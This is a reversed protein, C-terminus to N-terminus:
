PGVGYSPSQFNNLPESLALFEGALADLGFGKTVTASFELEHKARGILTDIVKNEIIFDIQARFLEPDPERNQRYTDEPKTRLEDPLCVCVASFSGKLLDEKIDNVDDLLRWAVGFARYAKLFDNETRDNEAFNRLVLAPTILWTAMQDEFNRCYSELSDIESTIEISAYYQDIYTDIIDQGAAVGRALGHFREHMLIWAQSRLLINLHTASLEGDNLHDDMAHLLMAMAHATQASNIIRESLRDKNDPHNMLWYLVSWAPVYYRSLFNFGTGVACGLYQMLFLIADTQMSAPLTKCLGSLATGMEDCFMAQEPAIRISGFNIKSCTTCFEDTESKM